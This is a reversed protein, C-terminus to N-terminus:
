GTFGSGQNTGARNAANQWVKLWRSQQQWPKATETVQSVLGIQYAEPAPVLCGTMIIRIAHFEVWPVSYVSHVVLM